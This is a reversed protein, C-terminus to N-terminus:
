AALQEEETPKGFLWSEWNPKEDSAFTLLVLTLRPSVVFVRRQQDYSQQGARSWPRRALAALLACTCHLTYLRVSVVQAHLAAIRMRRVADEIQSAIHRFSPTESVRQALESITSAIRASASKPRRPRKPAAPAPADDPSRKDAPPRAAGSPAAGKSGGTQAAGEPPTGDPPPQSPDQPPAADVSRGSLEWLGDAADLKLILERDFKDFPFETCREPRLLPHLDPYMQNLCHAWANRQELREVLKATQNFLNKSLPGSLDLGLLNEGRKFTM